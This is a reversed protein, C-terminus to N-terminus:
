EILNNYNERQQNMENNEIEYNKNNNSDIEDPVEDYQLGQSNIHIATEESNENLLAMTETSDEEVDHNPILAEVKFYNVEEEEQRDTPDSSISEFVEYDNKVSPHRIRSSSQSQKQQIPLPSSTSPLDSVRAPSAKIYNSVNYKFTTLKDVLNKFTPRLEPNKNLCTKFVEDYLM